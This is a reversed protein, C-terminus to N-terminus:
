FNHSLSGEDHQHLPSNQLKKQTRQPRGPGEEILRDRITLMGDIDLLVAKM